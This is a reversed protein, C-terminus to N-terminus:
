HAFSCFKFPCGGPRDCAKCRDGAPNGGKMRPLSNPGIAGDEDPWKVGSKPTAKKPLKEPTRADGSGGAGGDGGRKRGQRASQTSAPEAELRLAAYEPARSAMQAMELSPTSNGMMSAKGLQKHMLDVILKMRGNPLAEALERVEELLAVAKEMSAWQPEAAGDVAGAGDDRVGKPVAMGAAVVCVGYLLRAFLTVATDTPATRVSELPVRSALPWGGEVTVAYAIKRLKSIPAMYHPRVKINYISKVLDTQTSLETQGWTAVSYAREEETGTHVVVPQSSATKANTAAAAHMPHEEEEIEKLVTWLRFFARTMEAIVKATHEPSKSGDKKEDLNAHTVVNNALRKIVRTKEEATSCFMLLEGESTGAGIAKLVATNLTTTLELEAITEGLTEMKARKLVKEAQPTIKITGSM